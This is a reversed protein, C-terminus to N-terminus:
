SAQKVAGIVLSSAVGKSNSSEGHLRKKVPALIQEVTEGSVEEQEFVVDAIEELQDQAERLIKSFDREALMLLENAAAVPDVKTHGVNASRVAKLSLISTPSMGYDTVMALAIESARHLDDAAGSSVDGLILREALRGALLMQLERELQTKSVLRREEEPTIMTVGLANGRPLLSVKELKGLDLLVTAVAHGAEHVAVRRRVSETTCAGGSSVEGMRHIEIAKLLNEQNITSNGVRVSRIAALNVVAAIAAPSLGMCRRSVEDLDVDGLNLKSSYLQLLELRELHNPATIEVTRDFRGERMMAPDLSAGFNTAGIVYVGKSNDFGDMEVLFRNIIRNNETEVADGGQRRAGIGDIEDIFVICPANERATRFLQRVALVGAGVMPKTFDSGTAAIFNLGCETALAKALLTKGTGPPGVLLVGKPPKAGAKQYAKRM